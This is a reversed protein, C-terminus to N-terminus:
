VFKCEKFWTLFNFVNELMHAQICYWFDLNNANNQGNCMYKVKKHM